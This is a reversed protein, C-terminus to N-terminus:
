VMGHASKSAIAKAAQPPPPPPPPSETGVGRLEDATEEPLLRLLEITLLETAFLARTEDDTLLTILEELLAGSLLELECDDTPM